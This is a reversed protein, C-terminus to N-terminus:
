GNLEVTLVGRAPTVTEIIIYIIEEGEFAGGYEDVSEGETLHFLLEKTGNADYYVNIEGSKLSATYHFDGTSDESSRMKLVCTGKLKYFKAGCEERGSTRVLGLAAYSSVYKTGTVRCASCGLLLMVSLLICLIRKM